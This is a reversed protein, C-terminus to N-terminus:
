TPLHPYLKELKKVSSQISSPQKTYDNQTNKSSKRPRGEMQHLSLMQHHENKETKTSPIHENWNM